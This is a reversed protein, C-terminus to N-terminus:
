APVRPTFIRWLETKLHGQPSQGFVQKGNPLLRMFAPEGTQFLTNDSLGRPRNETGRGSGQGRETGARDRAKKKNNQRIKYM